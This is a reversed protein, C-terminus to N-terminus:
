EGYVHLDFDAMVSIDDNTVNCTYKGGNNKSANVVHVVTLSDGFGGGIINVGRSRDDLLIKGNYHWKASYRSPSSGNYTCIMFAEDCQLVELSTNYKVIELTSNAAFTFILLMCKVACM